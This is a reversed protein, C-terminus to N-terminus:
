VFIDEDSSLIIEGKERALRFWGLFTGAAADWDRKSVAGILGGEERISKRRGASVCSLIKERFEIGTGKLLFAIDRDSMTKLKEQVPRDVAKVIDDLTYLREKLDRGTGPSNMELEKIIRDGFSYDGQKLIAALAQIGDIELDKAGSGGIHRAKERLAAAVRELVEPAVEGQRAIRRLTEAKREAPFQSLAGASLKSSLRSLILAATSPAEDKLLMVMQGPTFEELFGFVNAKSNPVTKNLLAEGKEPGMAAYLIRRAAEVGGASSGSYGYPASLLSRFEALIAEGEGAGIGRISAIERSVAEVQEPDLETLIAAAQDAGILILFKAVRRYKSDGGDLPLASDPPPIRVTEKRLPAKITKFLGENDARAPPVAQSAFTVPEEPNSPPEPYRKMTQQYADIGRRLINGM